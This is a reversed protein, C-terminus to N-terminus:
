KVKIKVTVTKEFPLFANNGSAKVTIKIKYTGKKTGKKVTIKGNKKNVSLKKNSGKKVKEYTITGQAGKVTLASVTQKKKLLKSAKVKKANVKVTMSQPKKVPKEGTALSTGHQQTKAKELAAKAQEVSQLAEEIREATVGDKKLLEQLGSVVKRYIDYSEKTYDEAKIKEAEAILEAAQKRVNESEVTQENKKVKVITFSVAPLTYVLKGDKVVAETVVPAVKKPAEITNQDMYDGSLCILEVKTGEKVGKYNLTISKAHDDHNVLKTYINEEDESTVYYIEKQHGKKEDYEKTKDNYRCLVTDLIHDGYNNANMAQVYFSPTGYSEYANFKILNYDWDRCGERELLPAYSAHRVIDANREIGTIYAAESIATELINETTAGNHGAYEGIFVESGGENLRKYGDYVYDGNLLTNANEGSYNIYYHEDVLTQGPMKRNIWNWAETNQSGQYYPGTSSILTIKRGPYNEKVYDEIYKKCWEFNSYYTQGWNENGIGIYQLDFPEEHGNEVRKKAWYAQTSDSSEPDGWCYDILHTAHDAFKELGNGPTAAEAVPNRFQCFIGASLIPLAQAGLEECLSLIEHYGFQYSMMYGYGDVYNTTHGQTGWYSGIARRNELPGVSDEWNYYGDTGDSGEIACGGPFRIFGPHLEKLKEVLDARLGAGYSYNKNGYGFSDKPVLSVMDLYIVDADSANKFTLVLTGPETKTGKLDATVKNWKGDKVTSLEVEDSIAEGADNVLKVSVTGSYSSDARMFASFAFERGEKVPMASRDLKRKEVFGHNSLTLNGTIRAYNKNTENLSDTREVTFGAPKNSKWHLKWSNQDGRVAPTEARDVNLYNEFSNNKVLESSLGGDAASNIDEYFVGYLEKSIDVGRKATDITMAYETTKVSLVMIEIKREKTIDGQKCAATLTVKTDEEPPTVKGDDSIVEPKDSKWTITIDKALESTKPLSLSKCVTSAIRGERVQPIEITNAAAAVAFDDTLDAYVKWRYVGNAHANSDVTMYMRISKTTIEGITIQNYEGFNSFNVPNSILTADQWNGADDKYQFHVNQSMKMDGDDGYWYVQFTKTTIKEPWDYQLWHESGPQQSWNGWGLNTGISSGTPEFAPNNIGNVNEWDSTYDSSPVAYVAADPLKLDPSPAEPQPTDPILSEPISDTYVKWRYVGNAAANGENLVTLDMRLGKTTVEEVEITNYTNLAILDAYGTKMTLPKWSGADDKYEFSVSGPIRTGDGDDYWYVDFASTTIAEAWDLQIYHASGKEQSWNGWGKGAGVNSSGPEFKPNIVGKLNEWSSTYDSTIAAYVAADKKEEAASVEATGCGLVATVAMVAALMGGLWQRIKRKKM